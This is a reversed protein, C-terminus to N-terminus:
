SEFSLYFYVFRGFKELLRSRIKKKKYYRTALTWGFAKTPTTPWSCPDLDPVLAAPLTSARLLM